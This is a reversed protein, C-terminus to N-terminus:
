FKYALKILFSRGVEVPESFLFGAYEQHKNDLLNQGILSVETDKRPYWGLKTDLRLYSDVDIGSLKNVHYVSSTFDFNHPLDVYSRFAFQHNPSRSNSSVNTEFAPNLHLELFTYNLIFNLYDKPQWNVSLEAGYTFGSGFNSSQVQLPGVLENSSLKEYINYFTAFDFSVETSPYIRYGLEYATLEEAEAGPNGVQSAFGFPTGAVVLNVDNISRNPMRVARSISAWLTQNNNPLYLLKLSPQVELHTYDNHELKTGLTLFLKSPLITIKDQIFTSFLDNSDNVPNFNIFESNEMRDVIYRYGIGTSISHRKFLNIDYQVDFDLTSIDQELYSVNRWANDFYTQVTLSSNKDITKNWKFTINGGRVEEDDHTISSFPVFITPEKIFQDETGYYYDGSIFFVNDQNKRWDVRFGTDIKQMEDDADSGSLLEANKRKKGKIYARYDIDNGIKGGKRYGLTGREENGIMATAFNGQTSRSKKRIINIIGNVANSGWLTAGPGRIVEIRAIDEMLMDQVDWFVGSFLPTYVTRGDIFVLLKNALQDNFGRSSIAWKNSGARAVQIGPALRLAEPISTAGSRKIDEASIVYVAAAAQSIKEAKKSVSTVIGDLKLIDELPMKLLDDTKNELPKAFTVNSSAIISCAAITYLKERIM